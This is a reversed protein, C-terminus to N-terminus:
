MLMDDELLLSTAILSDIENEIQVLCVKGYYLKYVILYLVM